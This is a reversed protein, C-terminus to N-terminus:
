IREKLRDFFDAQAPNIKKRAEPEPFFRAEDIEPFSKTQGSNPPWEMEFTNCEIRHGAPLDGELGWAEVTKGGKQKLSGLPIFDGEPEFGIEEDFEQIARELPDESDLDIEGKPISWAGEDKNQWYPGGPHVLLFELPDDDRFLLIGASRKAM